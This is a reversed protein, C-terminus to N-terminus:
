ALIFRYQSKSPAMGPVMGLVMRPVMGPVKGPVTQSVWAKQVTQVTQAEMAV